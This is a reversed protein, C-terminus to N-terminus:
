SGQLIGRHDVFEDSLVDITKMMLGYRMSPSLIAHLLSHQLQM